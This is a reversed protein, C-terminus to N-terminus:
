PHAIALTNPLRSAGEGMVRAGPVATVMSHQLDDRLRGIAAQGDEGSARAAAAFAAIAPLPETGARRGLEQGGGRAVPALAISDAVVLAGAGQMGGLKHGSLTVLDGPLARFTLRGAAQVADCHVLACR